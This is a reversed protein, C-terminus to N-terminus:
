QARDGEISGGCRRSLDTVKRSDLLREWWVKLFVAQCDFRTPGEGFLPNKFGCYWLAEPGEEQSFWWVQYLCDDKKDLEAIWRKFLVQDKVLKGYELGM